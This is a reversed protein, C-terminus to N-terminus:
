APAQGRLDVSLAIQLQRVWISDNSLKFSEGAWARLLCDGFVNAMGKAADSPVANGIRERWRSDSAGDLEFRDEPDYLSQLAALELTTFPRHWTGDRAIIVCTLQEALGPLLDVRRDAISWRGNDAQGYATISGVTQEWGVVGYHAQNAYTNADRGLLGKPRPDAVSFRGNDWGHASATVAGAHARWDLVGYHDAQKLGRPRPDAVSLAGSGVRDSGTVTPIAEDYPIVKHKHTHANPGHTPRPDAVAFPGNTPRSSAQVVGAPEDWPVVGAVGHHRGEIRPDAVAALSGKASTVAPAAEDAGVVHCVNSFRPKDDLRPDAVAFTGNPPLSEGAVVGVPEGFDLVGLAGNRRGEVRPDAVVSAGNGTTSAAIVANAPGNYPTVRYKGNVHRTESGRPDAVCLGTGGPGAVAPAPEDAPVIRFVNNFPTREGFRPDAISHPGGGATSQSTVTAAPDEWPRVGYQSFSQNKQQPRPDAVAGRNQLPSRASTVTPAPDEWKSVGAQGTGWMESRPDAVSHAGNTPSSRGPVVGTHEDWRNVGLVGSQWATDPAIAFDKLFGDEVRLSNLSRWDKGAEVFALRVWTKWQLAPVRHMPGARAVDGPLPMRDLVEGVGRLPRKPPEYLLAPVKAVFRFPVLHRERSQALPPDAIMGCNHDTEAGMYGYGRMLGMIQDMLYRGRTAIRPVNEFIVMEPPDDKWAECMLMMGRLTLGNLAQYKDTKSQKEGLLGSFGKCPASLFVIHPREYNFARRVDDPTAERWGPPPAKGHFAIFQELSFLDLVTGRVGALKEFDRICPEDVDIGGICRFKAVANGVRARGLNFGRAAAGLGCFFHGHRIEREVLVQSM